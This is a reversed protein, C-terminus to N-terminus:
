PHAESVDMGIVPFLYYPGSNFLFAAIMGASAQATGMVTPWHERGPAERASTFLPLLADWYGM